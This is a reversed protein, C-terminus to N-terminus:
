GLRGGEQPLPKQWFVTVNGPAGFEEFNKKTTPKWLDDFLPQRLLYLDDAPQFKDLPVFLNLTKINAFMYEVFKNMWCSGDKNSRIIDFLHVSYGGPKLVRDIDKIINSFIEETEVVHELASISFVLDFYNDPLEPNFNGMYDLVIRYPVSPLTTLGNGIGEFKDINWCEHTNQYLELIRSNGGGVDLIKSGPPLMQDIFANCLADQYAKLDCYYIDLPAGNPTVVYNEALLRMHSERAYTFDDFSCGPHFLPAALRGKPTKKLKHMYRAIPTPRDSQAADFRMNGVGWQGTDMSESAIIVEFENNKTKELARHRVERRAWPLSSGMEEYYASPNSSIQGPRSRFAGLQRQVHVLPALRAFRRWLDWDGAFRFSKDMGGAADWLRKRWFCSEQQVFRWHAGDAVGAAIVERPLWCSTFIQAIRGRRDIITPWGLVWSIEPQERGLRTVADLAGPWLMDDANLWGMWAAPPPDLLAFGADIAQYLGTDPTSAYSFSVTAPFGRAHADLREQWRALIELTGDTSCGDQVHYRISLDGAQSVVSWITADIYEAGNRVPTVMYFDYM